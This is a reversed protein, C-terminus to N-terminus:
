KLGKLIRTIGTLNKLVATSYRSFQVYRQQLSPDTASLEELKTQADSLANRLEKAMDTLTEFETTDVEEPEEASMDEPAVEPVEEERVPRRGMNPSLGIFGETLQKDNSKSKGGFLQAYRQKLDTMKNRM